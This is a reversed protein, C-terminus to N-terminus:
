RLFMEYLLVDEDVLLSGIPRPHAERDRVRDAPLDRGIRMDEISASLAHVTGRVVDSWLKTAPYVAPQCGSLSRSECGM